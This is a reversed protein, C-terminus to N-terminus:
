AARVPAGDNPTAKGCFCPHSGFGAGLDLGNAHLVALDIQKTGSSARMGLLRALGLFVAAVKREEDGEENKPLYADMQFATEESAAVLSEAPHRRNSAWRFNKAKRARARLPAM